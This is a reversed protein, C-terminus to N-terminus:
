ARATRRRRLGALAAAGVLALWGTAPLPVVSAGSEGGPLAVGFFIRQDITVLSFFPGGGPEHSLNGGATQLDLSGGFPGGGTGGFRFERTPGAGDLLVEVNALPTLIDGNGFALDTGGPGLAPFVIELVPADLATWAVPGAGPDTGLTLTGTGLYPMLDDSAGDGYFMTITLASAPAANLAAALAAAAFIRIM